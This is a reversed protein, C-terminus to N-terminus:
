LIIKNVYKWELLVGDRKGAYRLKGNCCESIHRINYYREAAIASEFREGTTICIVPKKKGNDQTGRHHSTNKNYDCLGRDAAQQLYKRVTIRNIKLEDSIQVIKLGQNWMSVIKEVLPVELYKIVQQMDLAFLDILNSLESALVNNTLYNFDSKRADIYIYNLIGNDLALKKKLIDNEQQNGSMFAVKQFHQGGQMEIVSNFKPLYFDYRKNQSWYFTKESEFEINLNHLVSAMFRNPISFGSYCCSCRLGNRSVNSVTKYLINGCMKCKWYIKKNSGKAVKYGDDPNELEEAIDPRTTWLDNYGIKIKRNACIPCGRDSALARGTQRFISNCKLCKCKYASQSNQGNSMSTTGVIEYQSNINSLIEGIEFKYKAKPM